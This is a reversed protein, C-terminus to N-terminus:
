GYYFVGRILENDVALRLKSLYFKGWVALLLPKQYLIDRDGHQMEFPTEPLFIATNPEIMLPNQHYILRQFVPHQTCDRLLAIGHWEQEARARLFPELDEMDADRQHLFFSDCNVEAFRHDLGYGRDAVSEGRPNIEALFSGFSLRFLTTPSSDPFRDENLVSRRPAADPKDKPPAKTGDATKASAAGRPQAAKRKAM